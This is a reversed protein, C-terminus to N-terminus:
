LLSTEGLLFRKNQLLQKSRPNTNISNPLDPNKQESLPWAVPWKPALKYIYNTFIVNIKWRYYSLDSHVQGTSKCNIFYM